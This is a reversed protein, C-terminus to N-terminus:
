TGPNNNDCMDKSYSISQIESSIDILDAWFQIMQSKSIM